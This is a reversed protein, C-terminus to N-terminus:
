ESPEPTVTTTTTIQRTRKFLDELRDNSSENTINQQFAVLPGRQNTFKFAEFMLDRAQANGPTRVKGTANCDECPVTDDIRGTGQCSLCQKKISKADEGVDEMVEPLRGALRMLGSRRQRDMYLDCVEKLGIGAKHCLNSFPKGNQLPDLMMKYLRAFKPDDSGGLYDIITPKDADKWFTDIADQEKRMVPAMRGTLRGGYKEVGREVEPLIERKPM